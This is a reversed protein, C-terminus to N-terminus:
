MSVRDRESALAPKAPRSRRLAFLRWTSMLGTGIMAANTIPRASIEASTPRPLFGPSTSLSSTSLSSPRRNRPTGISCTTKRLL